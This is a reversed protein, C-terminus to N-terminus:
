RTCSYVRRGGRKEKEAKQRDRAEALVHFDAALLISLHFEGHAAAGPDHDIDVIRTIQGGWCRAVVDQQGAVEMIVM